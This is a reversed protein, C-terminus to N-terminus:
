KVTRQTSGNGQLQYHFDIELLGVDAEYTDSGSTGNRFIRCILMSSILKGTGTITPFDAMLMRLTDSAGVTGTAEIINTTPFIANGNTWTYELGWLVTGTASTTPIFHVHPYIDTGEWYSHPLQATFYLEEELNNAFLYTFVGQSGAGNDRVQSFTPQKSGERVTSTVPVRLDEWLGPQPVWIGLDEDFQLISGEFPPGSQGTAGTGVAGTLSYNLPETNFNTVTYWNFDFLEFEVQSNIELLYTGTSADVVTGTIGLDFIIMNSGTAQVIVVNDSMDNRILTFHVGDSTTSPLTITFGTGGSTGGNVLYITYTPSLTTEASIETVYNLRGM